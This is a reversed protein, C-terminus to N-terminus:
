SAGRRRASREPAGALSPRLRPLRLDRPRRRRRGHARGGRGLRRPSAGRCQAGPLRRSRLRRGGARSARRPAARPGGDARADRRPAAGGRALGRTRHQALRRSGHLPRDAHRAGRRRTGRRGRDPGPAHAARQPRAPPDDGRGAGRPEAPAGGPPDRATPAPPARRRGRDHRDARRRRHVGVPRQADHDQGLGHRRLDAAHLASARRARAAGAARAAADGGGRPRRARARPPSLAPNDAGARRPRAASAGRERALRRPAARRM